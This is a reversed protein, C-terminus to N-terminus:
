MIVAIPCKPRNLRWDDSVFTMNSIRGLSPAPWSRQCTARTSSSSGASQRALNLDFRRMPQIRSAPMTAPCHAAAHPGHDLSDAKPDPGLERHREAYRAGSGRLRRRRWDHPGGEEPICSPRGHTWGEVRLRITVLARVPSPTM